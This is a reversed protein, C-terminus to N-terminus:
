VPPAAVFPCLSDNADGWAGAEDVSCFPGGGLLTIKCGNYDYGPRPFGLEGPCEYAGYCVGFASFPYDPCPGGTEVAIIVRKQEKVTECSTDSFAQACVLYFVAPNPAPTVFSSPAESYTEECTQGATSYLVESYRVIYLNGAEAGTGALCFDGAAQTPAHPIITPGDVLVWTCTDQDFRFRAYWQCEQVSEPCCTGDDVAPLDPATPVDSTEPLSAWVAPTGYAWASCGDLAVVLNAAQDCPVSVIAAAEADPAWAHPTLTCDWIWKQRWAYCAAACVVADALTQLYDADYPNTDGWISAVEDDTGAGHAGCPLPDSQCDNSM